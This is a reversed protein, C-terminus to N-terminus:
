LKVLFENYFEITKKQDNYRGHTIEQHCKQCVPIQIRKIQSRIAEFKDKNKISRISNIHHLTIEDTTGCM